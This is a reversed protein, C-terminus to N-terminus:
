CVDICITLTTNAKVVQSGELGLCCVLCAQGCEKKKLASLLVQETDILCDCVVPLSYKAQEIMNHLSTMTILM